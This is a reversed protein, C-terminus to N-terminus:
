CVTGLRVSHGALTNFFFFIYRNGISESYDGFAFYVLKIVMINHFVSFSMMVSFLVSREM